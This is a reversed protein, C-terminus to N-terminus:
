KTNKTGNVLELSVLSEAFRKDTVQGELREVGDVTEVPLVLDDPMELPVRVDRNVMQSLMAHMEGIQRKLDGIQEKM